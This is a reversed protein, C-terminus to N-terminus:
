AAKTLALSSSQMTSLRHQVAVQIHHTLDALSRTATPTPGTLLLWHNEALVVRLQSAATSAQMAERITRESGLQLHSGNHSLEKCTRQLVIWCDDITEAATLARRLEELFIEDAVARRVRGHSLTKRAARFEVYGLRRIGLAVLIAFLLIISFGMERQGFTQVLALSASVFCCCYLLLAAGRPSFGLALVRHHIHGRDGEFIPQRRLFRRGISLSVDVLPLAMIMLPSVMGLMGAHGEWVLGVCGLLFGVTLSGSDGLFVTAPSFNYRLFALLAGALPATAMALGVNGTLLAVFLTTATATLGVGTALGDMGDILNVANTCALLWVISLVFALWHPGHILTLRAGMSVALLAAVFQGALKTRPRLNLLDDALGVAFMVAVAPLVARLLATHNVYIQAGRPLFLYVLGLAAFYAVFIGIGGSRPVAAIHFKRKSDPEDVKGLRLFLNRVVPTAVFCLVFATLGLALVIM